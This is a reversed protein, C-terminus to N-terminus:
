INPLSSAVCCRLVDPTPRPRDMHLFITSASSPEMYRSSSASLLSIDPYKFVLSSPPILIESFKLSMEGFTLTVLVSYYFKFLLLLKDDLLFLLIELINGDVEDRPVDM